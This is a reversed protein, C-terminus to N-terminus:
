RPGENLYEEKALVHELDYDPEPQEGPNEPDDPMEPCNQHHQGDWHGCEPCIKPKM